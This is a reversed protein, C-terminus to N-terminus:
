YFKGFNLADSEQKLEFVKKQVRQLEKRVEEQREGLDKKKGALEEVLEENMSLKGKNIQFESFKKLTDKSKARYGAKTHYGGKYVIELGQTICDFNRDRAVEFASELSKVIASGGFFQKLYKELSPSYEKNKHTEKLSILSSIIVTESEKGSKIMSRNMTQNAELISAESTNNNNKQNAFWTLPAIHIKGGKSMKNLKILENASKENEVIITFIRDHYLSEIIPFLAESQIQIIDALIGVVGNIKTEPKRALELINVASVMNIGGYFSKLNKKIALSKNKCEQLRSAIDNEQLMLRYKDEKLKQNDNKAKELQSIQEEMLEELESIANRNKKKQQTLKEESQDFEAIQKELERRKKELKVKQQNKEQTTEAMQTNQLVKSEELKKELEIKQGFKKQYEREIKELEPIMKSEDQHIAKRRKRASEFEQKVIQNFNQLGDQAQLVKEQKIRREEEKKNAEIKLKKNQYSQELERVEQTKQKETVILEEIKKEVDELKKQYLTEKRIYLLRKITEIKKDKLDYQEWQERGEKLTGVKRGLEELLSATRKTEEDTKKLIKITERKREQYLKGGTMSRLVQYLEVGSLTLLKQIKRRNIYVMDHKQRLGGIKLINYFGVSKVKLDNLTYEIKNEKTIIKKM